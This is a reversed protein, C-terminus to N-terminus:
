GILVGNRVVTTGEIRVTAGTLTSGLFFGTKNKGGAEDNEGIAIYVNGAVIYDHLFGTRAEPNLGLDIYALRDRDGTARDWQRQVLDANETATWKSVKGGNFAFRLGKLWRGLSAVPRDFVVTGEASREDPAVFIEGAPINAMVDGRDLDDKTVMADEVRAERGILDCSFNTGNPATIEVRGRRELARRLRQARRALVDPRVSSAALMASRWEDLDFGYSSARQATVYGLGIRAGRLRARKARRYWEDNYGTTADWKETGVERIKAIDAPGPVFVYADAEDIAKWEHGGVHGVKSAPLTTTGRWFTDEDEFLLMPRAGLARAQYVLEAAIPLGHNWTEVVVNEKAKLRVTKRLVNKALAEYESM